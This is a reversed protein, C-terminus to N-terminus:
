THRYFNPSDGVMLSPRKATWPVVGPTLLSICQKGLTCLHTLHDVTSHWRKQEPYSVPMSKDIPVCRPWDLIFTFPYGWLKASHLSEGLPKTSVVCCMSTSALIISVWVVPSKQRTPFFTLLRAICRLRHRAQVHSSGKSQTVHIVSNQQHCCVTSTSTSMTVIWNSYTHMCVYAYQMCTTEQRSYGKINATLWMFMICFHHNRM